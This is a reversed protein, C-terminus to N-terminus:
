ENIKEVYNGIEVSFTVCDGWKIAKRYAAGWYLSAGGGEM